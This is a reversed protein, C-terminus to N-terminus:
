QKTERSFAYGFILSYTFMSINSKVSKLDEHTALNLAILMILTKEFKTM